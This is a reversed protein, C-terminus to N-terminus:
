LWLCFGPDHSHSCPGQHASGLRPPCKRVGGRLKGSFTPHYNLMEQAPHSPPLNLLLHCSRTNLNPSLQLPHGPDLSPRLDKPSLLTHSPPHCGCFVSNCCMVGLLRRQSVAAWLHRQLHMERRQRSPSRTAGM